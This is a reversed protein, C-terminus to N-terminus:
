TLDIVEHKRKLPSSGTGNRQPSLAPAVPLAVQDQSRATEMSSLSIENATSLSVQDGTQHLSPALGALRHAELTRCQDVMKIVDHLAGQYNVNATQGYPLSTLKKLSTNARAQNQLENIMNTGNKSIHKQLFEKASPDRENNFYDLLLSKWSAYQVYQNFKPNDGQHPEHKYPSNDLLSRITILVKPLTLLQYQLVGFVSKGTEITMAFAWKEGPWTGLISLCVKGEVYLNPHLRGGTHQVFTM